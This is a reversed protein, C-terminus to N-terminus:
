KYDKLPELQKGNVAIKINTETKKAIVMDKTKKKNLEMGFGKCVRVISNLMRQLDHTSSALIVTDGANPINTFRKENIGISKENELSSNVVEESYM